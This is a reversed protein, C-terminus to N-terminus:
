PPQEAIQVHHHRRPALRGARGFASVTDRATGATPTVVGRRRTEGARAGDATRRADYRVRSAM